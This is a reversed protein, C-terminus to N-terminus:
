IQKIKELLLHTNPNTQYIMQYHNFSRMLFPWKENIGKEFMDLPMYSIDFDIHNIKILERYFDFGTDELVFLDVDNTYMGNKASSGVLIISSVHKNKKIAEIKNKIINENIM